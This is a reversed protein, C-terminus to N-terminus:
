AIRVVPTERHNNTSVTDRAQGQSDLWPRDSIAGAFGDAVSAYVASTLTKRDAFQAPDLPSGIRVTVDVPGLKLCSILHPLMEMDGYWAVHPRLSRGLPLGHVRTYALAVPQVAPSIHTSKQVAGFLSSKFPLLRNGTGTTGEPFLVLREGAALRTEIEQRQAMVATRRDRDIFITRQLKALLGFVPWRAVEGKSIFSLEGVVSLVVIDLWTVHNSAILLPGTALPAGEVKIRLGLVRALNRHFFVPLSKQLPWGAKLAIWQVPILFAMLSAFGFLCLYARLAPM